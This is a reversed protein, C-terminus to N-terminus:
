HYDVCEVDTPGQPTWRFCLRFQDNVRISHRGARDGKLPELRNNPPVALDVLRTAADLMALKRELVTRLNAFRPAKKGEYVAQTHPCAFSQIV